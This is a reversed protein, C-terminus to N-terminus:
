PATEEAPAEASDGEQQRALDRNMVPPAVHRMPRELPLPSLPANAPIMPNGKPTTVVAV